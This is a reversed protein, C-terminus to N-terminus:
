SSAVHTSGRPYEFSSRSRARTTGREVMGGKVERWWAERLRERVAPALRRDENSQVPSAANTRVVANSITSARDSARESLACSAGAARAGRRVACVLVAAPMEESGLTVCSSSSRSATGDDDGDDNGDDDGDDGRWREGRWRITAM